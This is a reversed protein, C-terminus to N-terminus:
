VFFNDSKLFLIDKYKSELSSKLEYSLMAFYRSVLCYSVEVPIEHALMLYNSFMIKLSIEATSFSVVRELIWKLLYM